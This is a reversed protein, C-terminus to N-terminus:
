SGAYRFILGFPLSRNRVCKPLDLRIPENGMRGESPSTGVSTTGNSRYIPGSMSLLYRGMWSTVTLLANVERDNHISVCVSDTLFISSNRSLDLVAM